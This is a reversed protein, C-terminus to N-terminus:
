VGAADYSDNRSNFFIDNGIVLAGARMQIATAFADDIDRENSV